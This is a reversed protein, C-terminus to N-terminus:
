RGKPSLVMCILITLPLFLYKLIIIPFFMLKFLMKIVM